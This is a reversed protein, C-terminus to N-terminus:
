CPSLGSSESSACIMLAILAAADMVGGVIMGVTRGTHSKQEIIFAIRDLSIVQREATRAGGPPPSLELAVGTLRLYQSPVQRAAIAGALLSGSLIHGDRDALGSIDALSLRVTEEAGTVLIWDHDFGRFEGIRKEGRALFVAVSDGLAPLPLETALAERAKEYRVVYDPSQVGEAGLYKGSVETGDVLRLKIRQGRRIMEEVHQPKFSRPNGADIASGISYGVVSCGCVASSVILLIWLQDL